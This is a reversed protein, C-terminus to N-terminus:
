SFTQYHRGDHKVRQLMWKVLKVQLRFVKRGLPDKRKSPRLRWEYLNGHITVHKRSYGEQFLQNFAAKRNKAIVFTFHRWKHRGKATVEKDIYEKLSFQHEEIPPGIDKSTTEGAMQCALYYSVFHEKVYQKQLEAMREIEFMDLTQSLM